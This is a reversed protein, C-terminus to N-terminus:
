SHVPLAVPLDEHVPTAMGCVIQLGRIIAVRPAMPFSVRQDYVRDSEIVLSPEVSGAVWMSLLQMHDFTIRAGIGRVQLELDSDVIGAGIGPRELNVPM